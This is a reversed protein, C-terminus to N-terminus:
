LNGTCKEVDLTNNYEGFAMKRRLFNIFFLSLMIIGPKGLLSSIFNAHTSPTGSKEPSGYVWKTHLM